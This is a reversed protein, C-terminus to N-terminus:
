NKFEAILTEGDNTWARGNYSILAIQAGDKFVKAPGWKSGGYGSRDRAAAYARQVDPLSSYTKGKFTAKPGYTLEITLM